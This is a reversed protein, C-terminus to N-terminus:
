AHFAMECSPIKKQQVPTMESVQMVIQRQDSDELLKRTTTSSKTCGSMINTKRQAEPTWLGCSPPAQKLPTLGWPSCGGGSLRSGQKQRRLSHCLESIFGGDRVVM